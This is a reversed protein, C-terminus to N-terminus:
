IDTVIKKSVAVDMIALGVIKCLIIKRKKPNGLIEKKDCTKLQGIEVLQDKRVNILEGAELLTHEKSDVIIKGASEVLVYNILHDDCEKMFHKYSGILSIYLMSDNESELYKYLINPETSPLCGFIVDSCHIKFSDELKHHVFQIKANGTGSSNLIEKIKEECNLKSNRYFVQIIIKDCLDQLLKCSLLIHWFAQSGTGFVSIVFTDKKETLSTIYERYLGICSALATRFGTIVGAELIYKVSGQNPDILLISGNFGSNKASNNHLIKIGSFTDDVVPMFFLTNKNKKTTEVIRPPIISPSESYKLLADELCILYEILKEKTLNLLHTELLSTNITQPVNM